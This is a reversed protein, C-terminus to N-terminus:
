VIYCTESKGFWKYRYKSVLMYMWDRIFSPIVILIFFLNLPFGLFLAIHLLADSKQYVKGNKVLFLTAPTNTNYGPLGPIKTKDHDQLPIFSFVKRKDRKIIFQVSRCCLNCYGDFLILQKKTHM